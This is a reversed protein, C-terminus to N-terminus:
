KTQRLKYLQLQELYDRASDLLWEGQDPKVKPEPPEPVAVTM